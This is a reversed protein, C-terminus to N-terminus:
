VIEINVPVGRARVAAVFAELDRRVGPADMAPYLPLVVRQLHPCRGTWAVHADGIACGIAAWPNRFVGGGVLTLIVTRSRRLCAAAYTGGYAAHLLFTMREQAVARDLLRVGQASMDMAAVFVQDVRPAEAASVFDCTMDAGDGRRRFQAVADCHLGIRVHRVHAAPPLPSRLRADAKVAATDTFLKGNRVPFYPMLADHGLLEVQRGDRHQGSVDAAGHETEQVFCCHTRVIAAVACASAAAPAQTKDVMLHTVFHGSRYNVRDHAGELCNFNSAVQVLTGPTARCQLANIDVPDTPSASSRRVVVTLPVGKSKAADDSKCAAALAQLSWVSFAGAPLVSLADGEKVHFEIAPGFRVDRGEVTRVDRAPGGAALWAEEEEGM